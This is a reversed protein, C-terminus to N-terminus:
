DSLWRLSRYLLQTAGPMFGSGHHFTADLGTVVIEAPFSVNDYYVLIGAPDVGDEELYVLPTAGEPPFAVSHHHWHFSEDNYYQWMFHDKNTSRRKTDEGTRWLWFETPREEEKVGILEELNNGEEFFIKHGSVQLFEQIPKQVKENWRPIQTSCVYLSDLAAIDQVDVEPAYLDVLDFARVAPDQWTAQQWYNAMHLFGVKKTAM